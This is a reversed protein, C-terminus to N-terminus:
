VDNVVMQFTNQGKATCFQIVSHLECNSSIQIHAAMKCFEIYGVTRIIM